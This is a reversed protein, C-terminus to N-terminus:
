GGQMWRGRFWPKDGWPVPPEGREGGIENISRLGYKLDQEQKKLLMEQNEPVPDESAVFLRGGPDFLKVVNENITEYRRQNRPRIAKRVHQAEAAQLNALNTDSTLFALPVHFANCIDKM